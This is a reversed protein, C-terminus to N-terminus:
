KNKTKPPKNQQQERIKERTTPDIRIDGQVDKEKQGNM